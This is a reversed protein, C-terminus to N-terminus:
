LPSSSKLKPNWRKPNVTDQTMDHGSAQLMHRLSIVQPLCEGMEVVNMVKM